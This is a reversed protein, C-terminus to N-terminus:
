GFIRRSQQVDENMQRILDEASDFRVMERLFALFDVDMVKGYLDGSFDHVFVEIKVTEVGFTPNSGIHLTAGFCRGDFRAAAAYIGPKPLITKVDALNATPFGLTRGRQEGHIVTGTIRYPQPMWECLREIQGAQIMQRIGTSSVRESGMQLPEVIDIDIGARKGYVKIVEPTGTRDKGFSFNQGEVVMVARFRNQITEEFFTDASQRLLEPSATLVAVADINMRRILELKRDLTCIPKIDTGPNLVAAPLPDFTVLVAPVQLRRAHSKLRQVILSHGFHMGDFKGISVAGGRLEDPFNVASHIIKM